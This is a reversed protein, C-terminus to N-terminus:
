GIPMPHPSLLLPRDLDAPVVLGPQSRERAADELVKQRAQQATRIVTGSSDTMAAAIRGAVIPAAFSTGSWLAWGDFDKFDVFTSLVDTGVAAIDVWQGFNSFNALQVRGDQVQDLAAVAVVRKMAAPWFRRGQAVVQAREDPHHNGAAAVVVTTHRIRSFAKRHALPVRNTRTYGGLSLNIVDAGRRDLEVIANAATRVRVFGDMDLARIVHVTAAPAQRLILGTVFTGHGAQRDLENDSNEDLPDFSGPSALYSGDSWANRRIGTDVVGVIIGKGAVDDDTRPPFRHETAKPMSAPGGMEASAGLEGTHPDVVVGVTHDPAVMDSLEPAVTRIHNVVDGPDRSDDCWSLAVLGANDPEDLAIDPLEGFQETFTSSKVAVEVEDAFDEDVLIHGPARKKVYTEIPDIGAM